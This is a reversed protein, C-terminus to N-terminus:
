YAKQCLTAHVPQRPTFRPLKTFQAINLLSEKYVINSPNCLNYYYSDIFNLDGSISTSDIAFALSNSAPAGRPLSCYNNACRVHRFTTNHGGGGYVSFCGNGQHVADVDTVTVYGSDTDVMVGVGSPSNNGDLLGREIAIDTSKYVNVNDETYSNALSTLNFFDSLIGHSSHDWQVLQGRPFPGRQDHGEIFTLKINTCKLLYISSSGRTLRVNNIILNMSNYCDINDNNNTPNAGSATAGDFIVDAGSIIVNNSNSVYIGPGSNGDHHVIVNQIKVGSYGNTNIAIGATSTIILNQIVQDNEMVTIPGSTKYPVCNNIKTPKLHSREMAVFSTTAIILLSIVLHIKVM